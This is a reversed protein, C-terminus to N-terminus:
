PLRGHTRGADPVDRGPSRTGGRALRLQETHHPQGHDAPVTALASQRLGTLRSRLAGAASGAMRAPGGGGRAAARDGGGADAAASRGQLQRLPLAVDAYLRATEGSGVDVGGPYIPLADHLSLPPIPP